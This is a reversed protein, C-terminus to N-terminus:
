MEGRRCLRKWEKVIARVACQTAFGELSDGRSHQYDLYAQWVTLNAIAIREERWYSSTYGPPPALRHTLAVARHVAKQLESPLQDPPDNHLTM